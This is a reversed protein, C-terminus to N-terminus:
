LAIAGNSSTCGKMPEVKPRVEWFVQDAVFAFLELLYLNSFAVTFPSFISCGAAFMESIWPASFVARRDVIMLM